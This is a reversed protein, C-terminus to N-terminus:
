GVAAGVRPAGFAADTTDSLGLMVQMLSVGDGIPGLVKALRAGLGHRMCTAGTIGGKLLVVDAISGVAKVVGARAHFHTALDRVELLPPTM